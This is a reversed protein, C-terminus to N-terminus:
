IEGRARAACYEKYSLSNPDKKVTGSQKTVPNIPPPAKSVNPKNDKMLKAELKGIERAASLPPMKSIKEYLELDKALHYVLAPGIDSDLVAEYIAPTLPLDEAEQM